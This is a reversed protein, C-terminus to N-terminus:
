LNGEWDTVSKKGEDQICIDSSLFPFIDEHIRLGNKTTITVTDCSLGKEKMSDSKNNLYIRIDQIGDLLLSANHFVLRGQFAQSTNGNSYHIPIEGKLIVMRDKRFEEGKYYHREEWKVAVGDKYVYACTSFQDKRIMAKVKSDLKEM